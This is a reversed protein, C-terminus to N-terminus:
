KNEKSYPEAAAVELVAGSQDNSDKGNVLPVDCESYGGWVLDPTNEQGAM